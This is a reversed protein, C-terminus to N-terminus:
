NSYYHTNTNKLSATLLQSKCFLWDRCCLLFIHICATSNQKSFSDHSKELLLSYTWLIM